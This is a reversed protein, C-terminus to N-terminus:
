HDHGGGYQFAQSVHVPCYPWRGSVPAGCFAFDPEAPDGLSWRCASDALSELAAAGYTASPGPTRRIVLGGGESVEKRKAQERLARLSIGNRRLVSRLAKPNVGIANAIDSTRLTVLASILETLEGTTWRRRRESPASTRPLPQHSLPIQPVSPSANKFVAQESRRFQQSDGTFSRLCLHADVFRAYVVCFTYFVYSAEGAHSSKSFIPYKQHIM